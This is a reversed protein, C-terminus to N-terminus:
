NGELQTIRAQLVGMMGRVPSALVSVLNTIPSKMGGLLQSILIDRPPLSALKEIDAVSLLRSGLFGGKLSLTSKSTRIFESLAKASETINGEGFAIALPGQFSSTLDDRGAKEAAFRALTNKVVKYEINVQNLQRRLGNIEGATLGRYDTLIAHSSTTFVETLQDIVQAKNERHM